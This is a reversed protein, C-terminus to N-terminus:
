YEIKYFILNGRHRESFLIVTIFNPMIRSCTEIYLTIYRIIAILNYRLLIMGTRYFFDIFSKVVTLSIIMTYM